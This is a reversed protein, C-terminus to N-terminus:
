DSDFVTLYRKCQNCQFIYAMPSWNDELRTVGLIPKPALETWIMEILELKKQIVKPPRVHKPFFRQMLGEMLGKNKSAKRMKFLDYYTDKFFQLGNGNSSFKIMEAQGALCVIETCDGCHVPWFGAQWTVLVPTCSKFQADIEKAKTLVEEQNMNPFLEQLQNLLERFDAENGSVELEKLRGESVCKFCFAPYKKAGYYHSGDFCTSLQTCISCKTKESLVFSYKEPYRFYKFKYQV